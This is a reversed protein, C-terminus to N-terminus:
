PKAAKSAKINEPQAVDARRLPEYVVKDIRFGASAIAVLAKDHFIQGIAIKTIAGTIPPIRPKPM